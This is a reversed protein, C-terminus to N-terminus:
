RACLTVKASRIRTGALILRQQDAEDLPKGNAIQGAAIELVAIELPLNKLAAKWQSQKAQRRRQRKEEDTMNAPPREFLDKLELGLGHVIELASCGAYCRLLVCGENGRNIILNGKSKHGNPCTARYGKGYPRVNDLTALINNLPNM